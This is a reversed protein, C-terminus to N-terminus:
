MRGLKSLAKDLPALHWYDEVKLKSLDGKITGAFGYFEFDGEVAAVGGGNSSFAGTSVTESYYPVIDAVDQEPMNPLLNYKARYELIVEPNKNV